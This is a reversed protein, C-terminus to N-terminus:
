AKLQQTEQEIEGRKTYPLFEQFNLTAPIGLQFWWSDRSLKYDNILWITPKRKAM